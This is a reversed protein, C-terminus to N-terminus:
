KRAPAGQAAAGGRFARFFESNAPDIVM